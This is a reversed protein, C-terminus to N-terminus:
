GPTSRRFTNLVFPFQVYLSNECYNHLKIAQTWLARNCQILRQTHRQGFLSIIPSYLLQDNTREPWETCQGGVWGSGLVVNWVWFDAKINKKKEGIIAPCWKEKKKFKSYLNFSDKPECYGSRAPRHPTGAGLRVLCSVKAEMEYQFIWVPLLVNMWEIQM